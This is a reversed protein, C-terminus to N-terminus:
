PFPSTCSETSSTCMLYRHVLKMVYSREYFTFRRYTIHVCLQTCFHNHYKTNLNHKLIYNSTRIYIVLKLFLSIEYNWPVELILSDTFVYWEMGADTCRVSETNNAASEMHPLNSLSCLYIVPHYCSPLFFPWLDRVLGEAGRREWQQWIQHSADVGPLTQLYLTHQYESEPRSVVPVFLARFTVIVQLQCQYDTPSELVPVRTNM